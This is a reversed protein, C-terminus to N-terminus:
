RETRDLMKSALQSTIITNVDEMTAAIHPSMVEGYSNCIGVIFGNEAETIKVLMEMRGRDIAYPTKTVQAGSWTSNAQLPSMAGTHMGQAANNGLALGLQGSNGQSMMSAQSSTINQGLLSGVISNPMLGGNIRKLLGTCYVAADIVDSGLSM